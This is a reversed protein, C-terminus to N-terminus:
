LQRGKASDIACRMRASPDQPYKTRPEFRTVQKGRQGASKSKLCQGCSHYGADTTILTHAERYAATKEIMPM